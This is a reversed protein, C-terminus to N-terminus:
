HIHNNKKGRRLIIKTTRGKQSNQILNKKLPFDLKIDKTWLSATSKAINLKKSIQTISVGQKRLKNANTKLNVPHTM